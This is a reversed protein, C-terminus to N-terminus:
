EGREKATETAKMKREMHMAMRAAAIVNGACGEFKGDTYGRKDLHQIFMKRSQGSQWVSVDPRSLFEVLKIEESARLREVEASLKKNLDQYQETWVAMFDLLTVGHPNRNRAKDRIVDMFHLAKDHEERLREIEKEL